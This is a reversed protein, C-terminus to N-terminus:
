AHICSLPEVVFCARPLGAFRRGDEPAQDARALVLPFARLLAVLGQARDDVVIHQRGREQPMAMPANKSFAFCGRFQARRVLHGFVVCAALARPRFRWAVCVWPHRWLSHVCM